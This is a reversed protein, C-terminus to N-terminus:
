LLLGIGESRCSPWLWGRCKRDTAQRPDGDPENEDRRFPFVGRRLRTQQWIAELAGGDDLPPAWFEHRRRAPESLSVCSARARLDHVAVVAASGSGAPFRQANQQQRNAMGRNKGDELTGGGRTKRTKKTKGNRSKPLTRKRGLNTPFSESRNKEADFHTVNRLLIELVNANIKKGRPFAGCFILFCVPSALILEM